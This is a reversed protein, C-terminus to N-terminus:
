TNILLAQNLWYGTAFVNITKKRKSKKLNQMLLTKVV